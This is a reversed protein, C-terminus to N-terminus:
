GGAMSPNAQSPPSAKPWPWWGKLPMGEYVVNFNRRERYRNYSYVPKSNWDWANTYLMKDPTLWNLDFNILTSSSKAYVELTGRWEIDTNENGKLKYARIHQCHTRGFGREKLLERRDLEVFGRGPVLNASSCHFGHRMLGPINKANVELVAFWDREPVTKFWERIVSTFTAPTLVFILNPKSRTAWDEPCPAERDLPSGLRWDEETADPQREFNGYSPPHDELPDQEVAAEVESPNPPKPTDEIKSPESSMIPTSVTIQQRTALRVVVRRHFSSAALLCPLQKRM